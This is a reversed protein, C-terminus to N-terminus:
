SSRGKKGIFERPPRGAAGFALGCNYDFPSESDLIPRSSM